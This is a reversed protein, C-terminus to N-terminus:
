ICHFNSSRVVAASARRMMERLSFSSRVGFAKQIVNLTDVNANPQNSINDGDTFLLFVCQYCIKLSNGNILIYVVINGELEKNSIPACVSVCAHLLNRNGDCREALIQSLLEGNDIFVCM